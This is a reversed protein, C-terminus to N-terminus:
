LLPVATCCALYRVGYCLNRRSGRELVFPPVSVCSFSFITANSKKENPIKDLDKWLFMCQETHASKGNDLFNLGLNSLEDSPTTM